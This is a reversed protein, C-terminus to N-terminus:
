SRLLEIDQRKWEEIYNAVQVRDGKVALLGIDQAASPRSHVGYVWPTPLGEGDPAVHVITPAPSHELSSAVPRHVEVSPPRFIFVPKSIDLSLMPQAQFLNVTQCSSSRHCLQPYVQTVKFTTVLIHLVPIKRNSIGGVVVLQSKTTVHCAYRCSCPVAQIIMVTHLEGSTVSVIVPGTAKVTSHIPLTCPPVVVTM